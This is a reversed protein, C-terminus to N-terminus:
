KSLSGTAMKIQVSGQLGICNEVIKTGTNTTRM